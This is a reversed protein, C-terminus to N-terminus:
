NSVPTVPETTPPGRSVFGTALAAFFAHPDDPEMRTM